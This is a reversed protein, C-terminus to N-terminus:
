LIGELKLKIQFIIGRLSELYDLWKGDSAGMTGQGAEDEEGDPDNKSSWDDPDGNDTVLEPQFPIQESQYGSGNALDPPRELSHLVPPAGVFLALAVLLAIGTSRSQYMM